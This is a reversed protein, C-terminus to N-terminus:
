IKIALTSALVIHRLVLCGKKVQFWYRCSSFLSYIKCWWQFILKNQQWDYISQNVISKLTPYFLFAEWRWLTHYRSWFIGHSADVEHHSKSKCDAANAITILIHQHSVSSHEYNHCASISTCEFWPDLEIYFDYSLYPQKFSIWFSLCVNNRNWECLWINVRFSL